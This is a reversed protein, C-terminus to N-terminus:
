FEITITIKGKNAKITDCDNYFQKTNFSVGLSNQLLYIQRQMNSFEPDDVRFKNWKKHWKYKAKKKIVERQKETLQRKMQKM